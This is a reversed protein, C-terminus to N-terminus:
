GLRRVPLEGRASGRESSPSVRGLFPSGASRFDDELLRKKRGLIAKDDTSQQSPSNRRSRTMLTNVTCSYRLRSDSSFVNSRLVLPIVAPPPPPLSNARDGHQELRRPLRSSTNPGYTLGGGRRGAVAAQAQQAQVQKGREDRLERMRGEQMRRLIAVVKEDPSANTSGSQGRMSSSSSGGRSSSSSGSGTASGSELQAWLEYLSVIEQVIELVLSQDIALSALFTIPDPAASSSSKPGSSTTTTLASSPNNSADQSQRRTRTAPGGPRSADASRGSSASASPPLIQAAASAPPQLAFALYIAAVAILHPPHVLCLSSRFTDNIIFRHESVVACMGFITLKVFQSFSRVSVCWSMQLTTDDMELMKDKNLRGEEGAANAGGDRGCLQILARYPHFIILHFDLEELLYFEMEALRHHDSTFSVLGMDNFVVKAEGVASKVHVPTEEAKAAVYCCAAAVLAPDTECYSNRLYFRRFYVVATAVVQQRLNLRKCIKQMASASWIEIWALEQENAHRLDDLRATLLAYRPHLHHNAHSSLYFNASM